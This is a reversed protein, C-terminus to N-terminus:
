VICASAFLTTAACVLDVGPLQQCGFELGIQPRLQRLLEDPFKVATLLIIKRQKL